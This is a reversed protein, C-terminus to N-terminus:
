CSREHVGGGPGLIERLAGRSHGTHQRAEGEREAQIAQCCYHVPSTVANHPYKSWSSSYMLSAALM